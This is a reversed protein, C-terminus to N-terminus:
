VWRFPSELFLSFWPNLALEGYNRWDQYDVRTEPFFPGRGGPGGKAWFYEARNPQRYGYALDLRTRLRTHPVASDIFAVGTDTDLPLEEPEEQRTGSLLTNTSFNNQGLAPRAWSAMILMIWATTWLQGRM